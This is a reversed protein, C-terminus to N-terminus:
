DEQKFEEWWKDSIVEDTVDIFDPEMELRERLQDPYVRELDELDQLYGSHYITRAAAESCHLKNPNRFPHNIWKKIFKYVVFMWIFGFLGGYDYDAGLKRAMYRVSESLDKKDNTFVQVIEKGRIWKGWATTRYGFWSAEQVMVQQLDENYYAVFSHSTSKKKKKSSPFKNTFWRIARSLFAGSTSGGVIIKKM